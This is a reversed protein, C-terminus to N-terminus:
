KITAKRKYIAPRNNFGSCVLDFEDRIRKRILRGAQKAPYKKNGIIYESFHGIHPYGSFCMTVVLYKKCMDMLQILYEEPNKYHEITEFTLVIDYSGERNKNYKPHEINYLKCTRKLAIRQAKINNYYHTSFGKEVFFLTSLGIGNYDDFISLKTPRKKNDVLWRYLFRVSNKTYQLWCSYLDAPYDPHKYVSYDTEESDIWINILNDIKPQLIKLINSYPIKRVDQNLWNSIITKDDIISKM